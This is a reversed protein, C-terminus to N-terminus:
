LITLLESSSLGPCNWRKRYALNATVVLMFVIFFSVPLHTINIASTDAGTRSYTIWASIVASSLLGIAVSRATVARQM